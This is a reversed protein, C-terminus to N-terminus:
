QPRQNCPLAGVLGGQRGHLPLFPGVNIGRLGEGSCQCNRQLREKKLKNRVLRDLTYLSPRVISESFSIAVFRRFQCQRRYPMDRKRADFISTAQMQKTDAIWVANKICDDVM